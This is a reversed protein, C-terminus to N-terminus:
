DHNTLVINAATVIFKYVVAFRNATAELLIAFCAHRNPDYRVVVYINDSSASIDSIYLRDTLGRVISALLTSHM